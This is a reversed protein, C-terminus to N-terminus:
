EFTPTLLRIQLLIPPNKRILRVGLLIPIRVCEDVLLKSRRNDGKTRMYTRMTVTRPELLLTLDDLRDFVLAVPGNRDIVVATAAPALGEPM